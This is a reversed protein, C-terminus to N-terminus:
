ALETLNHLMQLLALAAEEGKNGLVGGSRDIAQQLTYDTLVGFMVPKSFKLAVATIGQTVGDCVFDFHRTEGQIVSGLVIVGDVQQHELLWQASLPLEFAGPPRTIVINEAPVGADKLANVAGELLNDTIQSNWRAAAIGIRHKGTNPFHQEVSVDRQATAM